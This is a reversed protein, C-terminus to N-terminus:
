KDERCNAFLEDDQVLFVRGFNEEDEQVSVCCEKVDGRWHLLFTGIQTAMQECSLDLDQRNAFAQLIFADLAKRVQFFELARDDGEVRFEVTVNFVHRHFDRLFRVDDPANKWRHLAVFSTKIGLVIAKVKM